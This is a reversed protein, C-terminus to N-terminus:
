SATRRRRGHDRDSGTARIPDLGRVDAYFLTTVDGGQQPEGEDAAETDATTDGTTEATTDATSDATTDGSAETSATTSGGGADDDDDGCAAALLALAAVGVWVKTWTRGM